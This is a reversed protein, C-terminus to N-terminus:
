KVSKGLEKIDDRGRDSSSYSPDEYVAYVLRELRKVKESLIKVMKELAVERKIAKRKQADFYYDRNLLLQRYFGVTLTQGFSLFLVGLAKLVFVPFLWWKKKVM